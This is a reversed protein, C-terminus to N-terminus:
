DTLGYQIENPNEPLTVHVSAGKGAESELWIKGGSREVIKKCLALGIGTGPYEGSGHLRQFIVFVREKYQPDVGIGNDHIIFHWADSEHLANISVVLPAEARFKIANGILNQFLQTLQMRDARLSPMEGIEIRAHSEAIIKALNSVANDMVENCDVPDFPKGEVHVRSLTLLDDILVRMRSAGNVAFHMFERATDDLKDAYRKELLQLYSVIMRIPEQLDHSALYAFQELERNSRSLKRIANNLQLESEKRATIDTHTGIM